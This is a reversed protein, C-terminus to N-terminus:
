RLFQLLSPPLARGLAGLTAEYAVEAVQLDMVAETMDVDEASSLEQRLAITSDEIRRQASEVQNTTAGISAQARSMSSLSADLRDLGAAVADDDGDRIAATLADLAAFTSGPADDIGFADAATVNVVVSEADSIRRRVDGSDVLSWTGETSTVADGDGYGGFLPRGRYRTNALGVLEDRIREIEVAIAEREDTGALETGSRVTLDRARQLRERGSQLVSDSASLWSIADAANRQEQSRAHLESRLRLARSAGGPDDSPAQRQRGTALRSQAREYSALRGELRRLSNAVMLENTIRM